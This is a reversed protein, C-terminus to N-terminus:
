RARALHQRAVEFDATLERDAPSLSQGAGARPVAPAAQQVQSRADVIQEGSGARFGPDENAILISYALLVRALAADRREAYDNTIAMSRERLRLAERGLRIADHHRRSETYVAALKLGAAATLRVNRVDGPDAALAARRTEVVEEYLKAAGALDRRKKLILGLDSLTFTRDLLRRWDGPAAAIEADEISLATRYCREAEDLTGDVILLAGLRKCAFAYQARNAKPEGYIELARRYLEKAKAYDSMQTRFVARASYDDAVASRVRPEGLSRPELLGCLEAQKRHWLEAEGAEHKELLARALDDYSRLLSLGAEVPQQRGALVTEGLRVAQRFSRIADDRRGLNESFEGGQLHGLRRYGEALELKLGDDAAADASLGDLFETARELLLLRAPTAGPLSRIAEHLEFLVSRSFRRVEGFRREARERQHRAVGAQWLSVGTGAVLSVVALAVAASQTKHRRALRAMRRWWPQRVASVERGELWARIDDALAHVSPYREDPNKRLTQLVIAALEGDASPLPPDEECVARMVGLTDGDTAAFPKWGTLLVYLVTGLSFIDSSTTIAGGRLQEPSAFEPTLLRTTAQATGGEAEILKAIGFDLLKPVGEETVLINAPKLDRHVVLRRHAYEVAECITLFVQLRRRLDPKERECWADLAAGEIYEMALYPSGDALTGGDLLRAISPHDLSALIQRENRFRAIASESLLGAPLLKVAVRQEYQEDARRAEWVVGMGGRGIERTLQWAGVRRGALAQEAAPEGRRELFEPLDEYTALLSRVEEVIEAADAQEALYREREADALPLAGEFLDKVRAWETGTM